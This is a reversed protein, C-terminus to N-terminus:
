QSLPSLPIEQSSCPQRGTGTHGPRCTSSPSDQIFGDRIVLSISASNQFSDLGTGVHRRYSAVLSHFSSAILASLSASHSFSLSVRQLHFSKFLFSHCLGASRIGVTPISLLLFLPLPHPFLLNLPFCGGCSGMRFCKGGRAIISFAKGAIQGRHWGTLIAIYFGHFLGLALPFVHTPLGWPIDYCRSIFSHTNAVQFTFKAPNGIRTSSM